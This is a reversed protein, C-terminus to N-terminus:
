INIKKIIVSKNLCDEIKKNKIKMYTKTDKEINAIEMINKEAKDNRSELANKHNSILYRKIDNDSKNFKIYKDIDINDLDFDDNEHDIHMIQIINDFQKKLFQYCFNNSKREVNQKFNTSMTLSIIKEIINKSIEESFFNLNGTREHKQPGSEDEDQKKKKKKKTKKKLQSSM